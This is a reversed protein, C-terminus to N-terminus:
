FHSLTCPHFASLAPQVAKGGTGTQRGRREQESSCSLTGQGMGNHPKYLRIRAFTTAVPTTHAIPRILRELRLCAM